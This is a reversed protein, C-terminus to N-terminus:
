SLKETEQTELFAEIKKRFKNSLLTSGKEVQSVLGQSIGVQKCFEVQTLGSEKRVKKVWNGNKEVTTAVTEVPTVETGSVEQNQGLNNMNNMRRILGYNSVKLIDKKKIFLLHKKYKKINKLLKNINNM